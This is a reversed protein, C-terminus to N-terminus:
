FLALCQAKRQQRLLLKLVERKDSIAANVYGKMIRVVANRTNNAKTEPAGNGPVHRGHSVDVELRCKIQPM